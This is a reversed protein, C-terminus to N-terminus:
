KKPALKSPTSRSSTNPQMKQVPDSILQHHIKVLAPAESQHSASQQSYPKGYFLEELALEYQFAMWSHNYGGLGKCEALLTCLTDTLDTTVPQIVHRLGLGHCNDRFPLLMPTEQLLHHIAQPNFFDCAEIKLPIHGELRYVAEM